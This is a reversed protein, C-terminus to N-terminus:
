RTRARRWRGWRGCGRMSAQRLTMYQKSAITLVMKTRNKASEISLKLSKHIWVAIDKRSMKNAEFHLAAKLKLKQQMTLRERSKQPTGLLQIWKQLLKKIVSVFKPIM